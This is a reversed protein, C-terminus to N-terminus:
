KETANCMLDDDSFHIANRAPLLSLSKLPPARRADHARGDETRGTRRVKAATGDSDMQYARGGESFSAVRRATGRSSRRWASIPSPSHSWDQDLSSECCCSPRLRRLRRMNYDLPWNLAPEPRWVSPRVSGFMAHVVSLSVFRRTPWLRFRKM